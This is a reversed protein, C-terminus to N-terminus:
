EAPETEPETEPESNEAAACTLKGSGLKNSECTASGTVAVDGSGVINAEVTGDSAFSTSGSGAVNVDARDITVAALNANGSGLVNLDLREVTGSATVSGSGAINLDLTEAALSAIVISGSGGINVDAKSAMTAAEIKGSGAMIIDEPAPMTVRVTATGIDSPADNMRMLSLTGNELVFRLADVVDQDGEVAIDLTDGETIIITDPGFLAIGTPPEGSTDLEALPVGDKGNINIDMDCGTLALSIAALPAFFQAFFRTM